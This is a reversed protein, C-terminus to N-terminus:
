KEKETVFVEAAHRPNSTCIACMAILADLDPLSVVVTEGTVAGGLSNLRSVSSPVAAHFHLDLQDQMLVYQIQAADHAAYQTDPMDFPHSPWKDYIHYNGDRYFFGVLRYM